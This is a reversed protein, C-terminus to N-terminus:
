PFVRITSAGTTTSVHLAPPSVMMDLELRNVQNDRLGSGARISAHAGTQPNWLTLGDGSTGIALRGDPLAVMDTVAGSAGAQAPTFYTFQRGDFSAIGYTPSSWWSKGDPTVTVANIDVPDGVTPPGFVPPGGTGPTCPSLVWGPVGGPCQVNHAPDPTCWMKVSGSSGCWQEGFNFSYAAGGRQFWGTKGTLANPTGDPNLEAALPTYIIKGASWKGGAWLDGDPAIALGSWGGM